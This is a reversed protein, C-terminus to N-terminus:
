TPPQPASDGATQPDWELLFYVGTDGVRSFGLREYLRLAPNFCEVHIRVPKGAQRAEALLDRLLASGIGVNRYAPLLAIDVLSIEDARRDVYLRGIPRQGQLIVQFSAHPFQAQYYTHQATFQMRLFAEKQVETWDLPALEEVRTSAYVQFLFGEDDPRIPRFTIPEAM